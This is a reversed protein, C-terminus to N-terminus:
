LDVWEGEFETGKFSSGREVENFDAVKGFGEALEAGLRGGSLGFPGFFEFESAAGGAREGPLADVFEGEGSGEEWRVAIGKDTEEVVGKVGCRVEFEGAGAAFIM